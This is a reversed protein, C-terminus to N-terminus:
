APAESCKASAALALSLEYIAQALLPLQSCFCDHESVATNLYQVCYESYIAEHCIVAAVTDQLRSSTSWLVFSMAARRASASLLSHSLSIGAIYVQEHRKPKNFGIYAECRESYFAKHCIMAAMTEQLGKFDQANSRGTVPLHTFRAQLCRGPVTLYLFHVM